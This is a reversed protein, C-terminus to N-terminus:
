SAPWRTRPQRSTYKARYRARTATTLRRADELQGARRLSVALTKAAALTGPFTRASRDAQLDRVDRSLLAVSDEYRGSRACTAPRPEQRLVAHVPARARAGGHAPRLVDQDIERAEAYQGVM